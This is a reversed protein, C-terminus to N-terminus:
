VYSVLCWAFMTQTFGHLAFRLSTTLNASVIMAVKNYYSNWFSNESFCTILGLDRFVACLCMYLM